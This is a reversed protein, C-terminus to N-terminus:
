TQGGVIGWYSLGWDWLWRSSSVWFYFLALLSIKLASEAYKYNHVSAKEVYMWENNPRRDVYIYTTHHYTGVYFFNHRREREQLRNACCKISTWSFWARQPCKGRLTVELCKGDWRLPKGAEDCLARYKSWLKLRTGTTQQIIGQYFRKNNKDSPWQVFHLMSAERLASREHAAIYPYIVVPQIEPLTLKFHSIIMVMVMVMMMMM